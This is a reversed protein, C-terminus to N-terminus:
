SRKDKSCGALGKFVNEPHISSKTKRGTKFEFIRSPSLIEDLITCLQKGNIKSEDRDIHVASLSHM